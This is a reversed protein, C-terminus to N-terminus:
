VLDHESPPRVEKLDFALPAPQARLAPQPAGDTQHVAGVGDDSELPPLAPQSAQVQELLCPPACAFGHFFTLNSCRLGGRALARFPHSCCSGHGGVSDFPPAHHHM